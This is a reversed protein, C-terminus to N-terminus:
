KKAAEIAKLIENGVFCVTKLTDTDPFQEPYKYASGAPTAACLDCLHKQEPNETTANAGRRMDYPKTEIGEYGCFDCESM